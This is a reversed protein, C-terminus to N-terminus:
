FKVQPATQAAENATFEAMPRNGRFFTSAWLVGPFTRLETNYLRVAEIYDRRAVSIRNETGELQDQLMKFNDNAKLQPYAEVSALLRGLGASLQGQAQSRFLM